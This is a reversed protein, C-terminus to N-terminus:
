VAIFPLRPRALQPSVAFKHVDFEYLPELSFFRSDERLSAHYSALAATRDFGTKIDPQLWFSARICICAFPTIKCFSGLSLEAQRRPHVFRSM